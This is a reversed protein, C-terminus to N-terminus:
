RNLLKFVFIVIILSRSLCSVLICLSVKEVPTINGSAQPVSSQQPESNESESLLAPDVAGSVEDTNNENSNGFVESNAHVDHSNKANVSVESAILLDDGKENLDLTDMVEYAPSNIGTSRQAANSVIPRQEPRKSAPLRPPRDILPPSLPPQM